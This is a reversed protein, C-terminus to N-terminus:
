KEVVHGDVAGSVFAKTESSHVSDIECESQEVKHHRNQKKADVARLVLPCRYLVSKPSRLNNYPQSQNHRGKQDRIREKLDPPVIDRQSPSNQEQQKTQHQQDIEGVRKRFEANLLNLVFIRPHPPSYEDTRRHTHIEAADRHRDHHIDEERMRTAGHVLSCDRYAKDVLAGRWRDISVGACILRRRRMPILAM